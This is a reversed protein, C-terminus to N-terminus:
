LFYMSRHVLFSLSMLSAGFPPPNKAIRSWVFIVERSLPWFSAATPPTMPASAADDQQMRGTINKLRPMPPAHIPLKVCSAGYWGYKIAAVSANMPVPYQSDYREDFAAQAAPSAQARGNGSTLIASMAAVTMTM